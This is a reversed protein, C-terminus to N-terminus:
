FYYADVGPQVRTYGVSLKVDATVVHLSWKHTSVAIDGLCMAKYM